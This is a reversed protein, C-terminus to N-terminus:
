IRICSFEGVIGDSGLTILDGFPGCIPKMIKDNEIVAQFENPHKSDMCFHIEM